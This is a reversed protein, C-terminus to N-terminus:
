RGLSRPSFLVYKVGGGLCLLCCYNSSHNKQYRFQPTTIREFTEPLFSRMTSLLLIIVEISVPQIRGRFLNYVLKSVTTVLKWPCGLQTMLVGVERRFIGGRLSVGRFVLPHSRM